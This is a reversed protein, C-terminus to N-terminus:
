KDTGDSSSIILPRTFMVHVDFPLGSGSTIRKQSSIAVSKYRGTLISSVNLMTGLMLCVALTGASFALPRLAHWQLALANSPALM